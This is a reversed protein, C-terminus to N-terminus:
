AKNKLILTSYESLSREQTSYPDNSREMQISSYTSDPAVYKKISLNPDNNEPLQQVTPIKSLIFSM